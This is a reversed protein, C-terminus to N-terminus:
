TPLPGCNKLFLQTVAVGEHDCTSNNEVKTRLSFIQLLCQQWTLLTVTWSRHDWPYHGQRWTPLGWWTCLTTNKSSVSQKWHRVWGPTYIPVLPNISPTIGCHVLMGDLPSYFYEWNSWAASVLSFCWGSPGNSEDASRVKRWRDM